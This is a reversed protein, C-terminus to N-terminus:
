LRSSCFGPISPDARQSRIALADDWTPGGRNKQKSIIVKLKKGTNLRSACSPLSNVGRANVLVQAM